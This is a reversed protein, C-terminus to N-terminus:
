QDLPSPRQPRLAVSAVPALRAEMGESLVIDAAGSRILRMADGIAQAPALAFPPMGGGKALTTMTLLRINMNKSGLDPESRGVGLM